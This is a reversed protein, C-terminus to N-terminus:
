KVAKQATSNTANGKKLEKKRTALIATIPKDLEGAAVAKKIQELIPLLKDMTGATISKKGPKLEITKNAYRLELFVTGAQDKWWWPRFRVQIDAQERSSTEGNNVWRQVTRKFPQGKIEASVAAIQLDIAEMLKTRFGQERSVTKQRSADALTLTDLIPM